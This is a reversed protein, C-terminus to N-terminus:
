VVMDSMINQIYNHVYTHMAHMCNIQNCVLQLCITHMLITCQNTKQTQKTSNNMYIAQLNNQTYFHLSHACRSLLQILEFNQLEFKFLMEVVNQM